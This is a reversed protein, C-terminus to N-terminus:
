GAAPPRAASPADSAHRICELLFGAQSAFGLATNLLVGTPAPRERMYKVYAVGVCRQGVLMPIALEGKIDHRDFAAPNLCDTIATAPPFGPLWQDFQFHQPTFSQGKDSINGLWIPCKWDLMHKTLGDPRTAPVLFDDDSAGAMYSDGSEKNLGFVECYSGRLFRAGLRALENLATRAASPSRVADACLELMQRNMTWLQQLEYTIAVRNTAYWLSRVHHPLFQGRETSELCLVGIAEAGSVIPVAIESQTEDNIWVHLDKFESQHLDSLLLARRNMVVWSVVGRGSTVSHEDAREPYTINGIQGRLQLVQREPDYLHVTGLGKSPHVGLADLASRLLRAFHYEPTTFPGSHLSVPALQPSVIRTAELTWQSDREALEAQLTPIFRAVDDRFERLRRKLDDDFSTPEEYNVFLIASLRDAANRHILRAMAGVGERMRFGGFMRATDESVSGWPVPRVRVDPEFSEEGEVVQQFASQPSLLGYMAEPFRVNVMAALRFEEPWQPDALYLTSSSGGVMASRKELLGHVSELVPSPDELTGPPLNLAAAILRLSRVTLWNLLAALDRQTMDREQLIRGVTRAFRSKDVM